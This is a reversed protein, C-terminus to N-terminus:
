DFSGLTPPSFETILATEPGPQSIVNKIVLMRKHGAMYYTKPANHIHELAIQNFHHSM